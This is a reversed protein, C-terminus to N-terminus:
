GALQDGHYETHSDFMNKVLLSMLQFLLDKPTLADLPAGRTM